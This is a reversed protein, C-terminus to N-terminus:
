EVAGQGSIAVKSTLGMRAATRTLKKFALHLAMYVAKTSTGRDKAVKVPDTGDLYVRKMCDQEVRTLRSHKMLDMIQMRMSVREMWDMVDTRNDPLSDMLRTEMGPLPIDISLKYIKEALGSKIAQRHTLTLERWEDLFKWLRHFISQAAYTSFKFGLEPKFGGAVIVLALFAESELEDLEIENGIKASVKRACFRALKLNALILEDQAATRKSWDRKM